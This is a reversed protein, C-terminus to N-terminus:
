KGAEVNKVKQRFLAATDAFSGYQRWWEVTKMAEALEAQRGSRILVGAVDCAEANIERGSKREQRDDLYIFLGLGISLALYAFVGYLKWNHPNPLKYGALPILLEVFIVVLLVEM